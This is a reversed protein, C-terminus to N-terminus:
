VTHSSYLRSPDNDSTASISADACSPHTEEPNRYRCIVIEETNWFLKEQRDVALIRLFYRVAVHADPPYELFMVTTNEDSFKESDSDDNSKLYACKLNKLRKPSDSSSLFGQSPASAM